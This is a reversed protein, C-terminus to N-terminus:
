CDLQISSTCSPPWIRLLGFKVSCSPIKCSWFVTTLYPPSMLCLLKGESGIHVAAATNQSSRCRRRKCACHNQKGSGGPRQEPIVFIILRSRTLPPSLGPLWFRIEFSSSSSCKLYGKPVSDNVSIGRSIASLCNDWCSM